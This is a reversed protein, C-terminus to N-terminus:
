RAGGATIFDHRERGTVGTSDGDARTHSDLWSFIVQSLASEIKPAERETQRRLEQQGLSARIRGAHGIYWRRLGRETVEGHFQMALHPGISFAQNAYRSTSALLTAGRPLDFTDGHCHFAARQLGDYNAVPSGRGAETLALPGWGFEFSPGKYVRSGLAAALMQAGFCIGLVPRQNEVRARVAQLEQEIFPYDQGEYLGIPAGLVALVDPELPDFPRDDFWADRYSIKFGRKRFAPAFGDLDEYAVHRLALVSPM